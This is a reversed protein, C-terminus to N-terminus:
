STDRDGELDVEIIDAEKLSKVEKDDLQPFNFNIEVVSENKHNIEQKDRWNIINKSAFIIFSQNKETFGRQILEHEQRDKFHSYAESFEKHHKKWEHLTDKNVGLSISAGALTPFRKKELEKDFYEGLLRPMDETYKTPQGPRRKKVLEKSM